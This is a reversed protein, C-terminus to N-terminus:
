VRKARERIFNRLSASGEIFANANPYDTHQHNPAKVLQDLQERTIGFKKVVFDTDTGV